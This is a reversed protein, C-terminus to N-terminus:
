RPRCRLPPGGGGDARGRRDAAGGAPLRRAYARGPGSARANRQLYDIYDDLDFRGVALPAMRADTWDTIYVQHTPLFAEVTGRLLTAYHGSMPAVILLKPQAAEGPSARAPRFAASQLVAPELRDGRRGRAAVGDVTVDPPPRVGAQRLPADHARVIRRRRRHEQRVAHERLPNFPNRFVFHAADSMARAPALAAHAMEYFQYSYGQFM